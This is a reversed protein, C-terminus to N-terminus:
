VSTGNNRITQGSPIEIEGGVKAEIKNVILRSM